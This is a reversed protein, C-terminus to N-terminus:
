CPRKSDLNENYREAAQYADYMQYLWIIALVVLAIASWLPMWFPSTGAGISWFAASWALAALIGIIVFAAFIVIGKKADAAYFHGAGPILFAFILAVMADKREPGQPPYAYQYGQYPPYYFGTSAYGPSKYPRLPQGCVQCFNAGDRNENGCKTCNM